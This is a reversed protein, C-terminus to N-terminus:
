PSALHRRYVWEFRRQADCVEIERELGYQDAVPPERGNAERRMASDM